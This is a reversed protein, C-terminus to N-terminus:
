GIMHGIGIIQLTNEDQGFRFLITLDHRWQDLIIPEPIFLQCNSPYPFASRRGLAMPDAALRELQQEVYNQVSLPLRVLEDLAGPSLIIDYGVSM